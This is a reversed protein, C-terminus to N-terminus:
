KVIRVCRVYYNSFKPSDGIDKRDFYVYKAFDNKKEYESSTWFVEKNFSRLKSNVKELSELQSLSPLFWDSYGDLFLNKCYKKAGEWNQVRSYKYDKIYAHKEKKTYKVNQWLLKRKKDYYTSPAKSNAVHFIKKRKTGTVSKKLNLQNIKLNKIKTYHGTWWGYSHMFFTLNGTNAMPKAKLKLKLKNNIYYLLKGNNPYYVIKEHFWKNWIPKVKNHKNNIWFYHCKCKYEYDFYSVQFLQKKNQYLGLAGTFFIKGGNYKRSYEPHIYVEREITIPININVNELKLTAKPGNDTECQKLILVRSKLSVCESINAYLFKNEANKFILKEYSNDFMIKKARAIADAIKKREIKLQKKDLLVLKTKSTADYGSPKGKYIFDTIFLKNDKIKFLIGLNKTAYEKFEKAQAIPIAITGEFRFNLVGGKVVYEFHENESNYQLKEFTFEQTGLSVLAAQWLWYNRYGSMLDLQKQHKLRLQANDDETKKKNILWNSYATTYQLKQTEKYKKVENSYKVDITEKQERWQALAKEKRVQFDKKKEFEGKQLIPESPYKEKIPKNGFNEIKPEMPLAKETIAIQEKYKKEAADLYDDVFFLLNNDYKKNKLPSKFSYLLPNNKEWVIVSNAQTQQLLKVMRKDRFLRKKARKNEPFVVLYKELAKIRAENDVISLAKQYTQKSFLERIRKKAEQLHYHCGDKQLYNHYDKISTANDYRIDDATGYSSLSTDITGSIWGGLKYYKSFNLGKPPVTVHERENIESGNAIGAFFGFFGNSWYQTPAQFEFYVDIPKDSYNSIHANLTYGYYTTKENGGTTYSTTTYSGNGNSYVNTHKQTDTTHSSSDIDYTVSGISLHTVPSPCAKGNYQLLSTLREQLSYTKPETSSSSYKSNEETKQNCATLLLLSLVLLTKYNLFKM